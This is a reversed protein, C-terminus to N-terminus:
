REPTTKFPLRIVAPKKEEDDYEEEDMIKSNPKVLASGLKDRSKIEWENERFSFFNSRELDGM